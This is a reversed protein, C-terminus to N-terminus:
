DTRSSRAELGRWASNYTKGGIVPHTAYMESEPLTLRRLQCPKSKGCLRAAENWTIRCGSLLDTAARCQRLCIEILKPKVTMLFVAALILGTRLGVPIMFFSTNLARIQMRSSEGSSSHVANLLRSLRRSSIGALAGFLLVIAVAIKALGIAV